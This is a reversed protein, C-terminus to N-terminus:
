RCGSSRYACHSSQIQHTRGTKIRGNLLTFDQFRKAVEFITHATRGAGGRLVSMRTRNHPSRGIRAEIEGREKSVSGHCLAIYLKFVQRDHFQDSLREHSIDNKAVM